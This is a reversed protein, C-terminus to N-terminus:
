LILTKSQFGTGQAMYTLSRGPHEALPWTWWIWYSLMEKFRQPQPGPPPGTRCGWILYSILHSGCRVQLSLLWTIRSGLDCDLREPAGVLSAAPWQGQQPLPRSEWPNLQALDAQGSQCSYFSFAWARSLGAARDPAPRGRSLGSPEWWLGKQHGEEWCHTRGERSEPAPAQSVEHGRVRWDLGQDLPFGPLRAPLTAPLALGPILGPCLSRSARGPWLLPWSEPSCIRAHKYFEALTELATQM